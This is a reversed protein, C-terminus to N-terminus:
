SCMMWIQVGIAALSLAIIFCCFIVFGILQMVGKQYSSIIKSGVRYIRRHTFIKKRDDRTKGAEPAEV